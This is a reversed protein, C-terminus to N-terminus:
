EEAEELKETIDEMTGDTIEIDDPLQFLEEDMEPNVEYELVEEVSNASQEEGNNDESVGEEAGRESRVEFYTEEDFWLQTMGDEGPSEIAHTEFDNIEEEGAYILEREELMNEYRNVNMNFWLEDESPPVPTEYRIAEDDGEVYHISYNPDEVDTILHTTFGGEHSETENRIFVDDEEMFIWEKETSTIYRDEADSYTEVTIERYFSELDEHFSIAQELVDTAEEDQDLEEGASNNANNEAENVETNETNGNNENDANEATEENGGCGALIFLGASVTIYYRKM